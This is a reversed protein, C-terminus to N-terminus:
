MGPQKLQWGTKIKEEDVLRKVDALLSKANYVIGDKITYLVGGTRIVKNDKTLEIAGTGYLVQLNKLPNANIIILDALKGVEVSGTEKDIGLAQAGYLTASRIVELVYRLWGHNRGVKCFAFRKSRRLEALM